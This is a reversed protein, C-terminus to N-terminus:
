RPPMRGDADPVDPWDSEEIERIWAPATTATWQDLLRHPDLVTAEVRQALERLMQAEERAADAFWSPVGYGPRAAGLRPVRRTAARFIGFRSLREHTTVDSTIGLANLRRLLEIDAGIGLNFPRAGAVAEVPEIRCATLLSGVLDPEPPSPRVIRIVLEDHPLMAVLRRLAGPGTLSRAACENAGDLPRLRGGHKIWEQWGSFWRHAPPTVTLLLTTPVGGIQVRLAEAAQEDFQAVDEASVVLVDVARETAEDILTALDVPAIDPLPSRGGAARVHEDLRGCLTWAILEHGFGGDGLVPFWVGDVPSGYAARMASQFTSTGSKHLGGHLVLRLPRSLSM